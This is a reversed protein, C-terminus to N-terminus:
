GVKITFSTDLVSPTCLYVKKCMARGFFQLQVTGTQEAVFRWICSNSPKWAYGVPLQLQLPGQSVTPGQWMIGFPMQIELVDGKRVNIPSASQKPQITVNAQTLPSSVVVDSPCGYASGFGPKTVFTPTPSPASSVATGRNSSGCAALIFVLIVVFFMALPFKKQRLIYMAFM